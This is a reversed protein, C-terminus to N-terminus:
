PNLQDKGVRCILQTEERVEILHFEEERLLGAAIERAEDESSTQMECSSYVSDDAKLSNFIYIPMTAGM